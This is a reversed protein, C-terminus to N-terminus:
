ADKKSDNNTMLQKKLKGYQLYYYITAALTGLMLAITWINPFKQMFYVCVFFVFFWFTSLLKKVQYKQELEQKNKM